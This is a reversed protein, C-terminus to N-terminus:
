KTRNAFYVGSLIIALCVIQLSTITEGYLLGWFIAVFPITYTVLSSFLVNTRKLLMYFLIQAAATGMIGLIVSALTSRLFAGDAWDSQFYGTFILIVLAPIALISFAIAAINISGIDGLYRALLNANLGYCLTALVILLSYFVDGQITFGDRSLFLLSVGLFGIIVAVMKEGNMRMQFFLVGVWIAFLPSLANLIGALSSNIHVEAICFLFSPIFSGTAGSLVIMMIKKKPFHRIQRIGIPILVVGGSFIRMAAVQYATLKVLGEKILIFSSGWIVTLLAFLFWNM